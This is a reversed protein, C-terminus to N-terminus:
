NNKSKKKTYFIKERMEEIYDEKEAIRQAKIEEEEQEEFGAEMNDDSYEERVDTPSYSNRYNQKIKIMEKRYDVEQEGNDIFDSLDAEEESQYNNIKKSNNIKIGKKIQNVQNQGNKSINQRSDKTTSIKNQLNDKKSIVKENSILPKLNIIKKQNNLTLNKRDEKEKNEAKIKNDVKIKQQAVFNNIDEKKQSEVPLGYLKINRNRIIQEQVKSISIMNKSKSESNSKKFIQTIKQITPKKDPDLRQKEMEVIKKSDIHKGSKHYINCKSCFEEEYSVKSKSSSFGNSATSAAISSDDQRYRKKNLRSNLALEKNIENIREIKKLQDSDTAKYNPKIHIVEKRKIEHDNSMLREQYMKKFNPDKGIKELLQVYNTARFEQVMPDIKKLSKNKQQIKSDSQVITKNKLDSKNNESPTKHNQNQIIGKSTIESIRKQPTALNTPKFKNMLNSAQKFVINKQENSRDNTKNNDSFLRNILLSAM